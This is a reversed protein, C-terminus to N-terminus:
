NRVGMDRTAECVRQGGVESRRAALWVGFGATSAKSSRPVTLESVIDLFSLVRDVDNGDLTVYRTLSSTREHLPM